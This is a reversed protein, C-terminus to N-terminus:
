KPYRQPILKAKMLAFVISPILVLQVAIGPLGTVFYGTAWLSMTMTGPACLLAKAAGGLIRGLLMATVMSIYLDAYVSKTRVFRLMLGSMFGYVACEVMMSPLMAAPPMSTLLSSLFPGLIGCALGFPWSCVLGCLLVPIHMPLMVSGANPIMHFAMPLVVCLAICVAAIILKKLNTM